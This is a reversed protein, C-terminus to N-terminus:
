AETSVVVSVTVVVPQGGARPRVGEVREMLRRGLVEVGEADTHPLILALREDYFAVADCLRTEDQALAVLERQAAQRFPEGHTSSLADLRDLQLVLCSLPAGYRRARAFEVRLLNLMQSYTLLPTDPATSM